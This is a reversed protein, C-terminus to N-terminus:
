KLSGESFEFVYPAANAAKMEKNIITAIAKQTTTTKMDQTSVMFLIIISAIILGCCLILGLFSFFVNRTHKEEDSDYTHISWEDDANEERQVVGPERYGAFPM